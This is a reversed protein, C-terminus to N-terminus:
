LIEKKFINKVMKSSPPLIVLNQPSSVVRVCWTFSGESFYDLGLEVGTIKLTQWQSKNITM